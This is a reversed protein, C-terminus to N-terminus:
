RRDEPAGAGRGLFAATAGLGGLLLHFPHDFPQLQLGFGHGGIQGAAGLALYFVGFSAAFWWLAVAGRALAAFAVLATAIHLTSHLPQM